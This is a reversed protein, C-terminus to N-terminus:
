SRVIHICFKLTNHINDLDFTYINKLSHRVRNSYLFIHYELNKLSAFFEKISIFVFLELYAWQAIVFLSIPSHFDILSLISSTTELLYLRLANVNNRKLNLSGKIKQIKYFIKIYLYSIRSISITSLSFFIISFNCFISTFKTLM